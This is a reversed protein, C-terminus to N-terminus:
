DRRQVRFNFTGSAGSFIVRIKWAGADGADTPFSGDEALDRSYVQVGNSDYVALLAGGGTIECSQDVDASTGTNSWVYEFTGTYKVVSKVQFQFNDPTNVIEPEIGASVMDDSCSVTFLVACIALCVATKSILVSVRM